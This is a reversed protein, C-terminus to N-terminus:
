LQKLIEVAELCANYDKRMEANENLELMDKLFSAIDVLGIASITGLEKDKILNSDNLFKRVSSGNRIAYTLGKFIREMNEREKFYAKLGTIDRKYLDIDFHTEKAPWNNDIEHKEAKTNKYNGKIYSAYLAAGKISAELHFKQAKTGKKQIYDRISKFGKLRGLAVEERKEKPIRYENAKYEYFHAEGYSNITLGSREISDMPMAEVRMNVVKVWDNDENIVPEKSKSVKEKEQIKKSEKKVVRPKFDSDSTLINKLWDLFGMSINNSHGGASREKCCIM